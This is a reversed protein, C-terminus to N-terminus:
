TCALIAMDLGASEDGGGEGGEDTAGMYVAGIDEEEEEEDEEEEEEELAVTLENRKIQRPTFVTRGHRARLSLGGGVEGRGGGEM